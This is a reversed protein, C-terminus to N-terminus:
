GSRQASNGRFLDGAIGNLLRENNRLLQEMVKHEQRLTASLAVIAQQKAIPPVAIPAGELVSRRISKTLSGEAQQEFYQQCPAQNIQWALFAPLLERNRPEIVFFQPAAVTQRQAPIGEVTVAYYRTGRAAFLIHGQHLWTPQRRGELSTHVCSTWRVGDKPDIDKMQVVLTGSQPHEPIKGRFPHGAEIKAIEHLQCIQGSTM